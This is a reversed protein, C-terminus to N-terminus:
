GCYDWTYTVVSRIQYLMKCMKFYERLVIEKVNASISSLKITISMNTKNKYYKYYYAKMEHLEREFLFDLHNM